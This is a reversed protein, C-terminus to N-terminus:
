KQYVESYSEKKQHTYEVALLLVGGWEGGNELGQILRLTILLIPAWIRIAQYTPLLGMAFTAIRM